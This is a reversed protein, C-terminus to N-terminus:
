SLTSEIKGSDNFKFEIDYIFRNNEEKCNLAQCNCGIFYNNIKPLTVPTNFIKDVSPHEFRFIKDGDVNFMDEALKQEATLEMRIKTHSQKRTTSEKTLLESIQRLNKLEENTFSCSDYIIAISLNISIVKALYTYEVIPIFSSYILEEFRKTKSGDAVILENSNDNTAIIKINFNFGLNSIVRYIKDLLAIKRVDKHEWISFNITLNTEDKGSHNDLRIRFLDQNDTPYINYYKSGSELQCKLKSIFYEKNENYFYIEFEIPIKNPTITLQSNSLDNFKSFLPSGTLKMNEASITVEKGKEFVDSMAKYQESTLNEFNMNLPVSESKAQITHIINEGDSTTTIKFRDDIEALASVVNNITKEPNIVESKIYESIEKVLLNKTESESFLKKGIQKESRLEAALKWQRLISITYKDEDSDILKSCSQCLWIGNDYNARQDPTLKSNYRAGGKGPAAATIHAAVGINIMKGTIANAGNTIVTCDPNSCCNGARERLLKKTSPSFDDRNKKM